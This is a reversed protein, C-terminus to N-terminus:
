LSEPEAPRRFCPTSSSPPVSGNAGLEARMIAVTRPADFGLKVETRFVELLMVKCFGIVFSEMEPFARRELAFKTTRGQDVFELCVDNGMSIVTLLGTGIRISEGLARTLVLM